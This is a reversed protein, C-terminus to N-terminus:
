DVEAKRRRNRVMNVGAGLGAGMAAGGVGYKAGQIGIARAYQPLGVLHALGRMRYAGYGVGGLGAAGGVLAGRKVDREMSKDAKVVGVAKSFEVLGSM